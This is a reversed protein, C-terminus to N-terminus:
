YNELVLNKATLLDHLYQVMTCPTPLGFALYYVRRSSWRCAGRGNKAHWRSHAYHQIRYQLIRHYRLVSRSVVQMGLVALLARELFRTKVIKSDARLFQWCTGINGSTSRVLSCNPDESDLGREWGVSSKASM